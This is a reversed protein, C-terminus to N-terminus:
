VMTNFDADESYLLLQTDATFCPLQTSLQWQQTPLSVECKSLCHDPASILM